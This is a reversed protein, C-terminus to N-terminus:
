TPEKPTRPTTDRTTRRKPALWPLPPMAALAWNQANPNCFLGHARDQLVALAGARALATAEPMAGEFTLAWAVGERVEISGGTAHRWWREAAARRELGRESVLLVVGGAPAREEPRMRVVCREKHPNYFQTSRHLRDELEAREPLAGALEFMRWRELGGLGRDLHARVVQLASVAEPDDGHLAVWAQAVAKAGTM